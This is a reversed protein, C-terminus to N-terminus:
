CSPMSLTTGPNRRSEFVVAAWAYGGKKKV